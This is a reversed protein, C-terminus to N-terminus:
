WDYRSADEALFLAVRARDKGWTAERGGKVSAVHDNHQVISPVTVLFEQKTNRAWRGVNGDDARTMRATPAWAMLERAKQVPWLCAVLPVFPAPGLPVYRISPKAAYLRRARAATAGPLAGMFLCVPTTPHRQAIKVLAEAFGPVPQADDQLVCVHGSRPLHSLAVKYGGWPDPPDSFHVAPEVELPACAAILDPLLHERSPHHQIRVLISPTRIERGGKQSRLDSM